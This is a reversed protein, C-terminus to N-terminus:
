TPEGYEKVGVALSGFPSTKFKPIRLRGAHALKLAVVPWNCPVGVAAPVNAFMVIPTLSPVDLTGNGANVIVTVDAGGGGGGGGFEGGVIEPEGDVDTCTPVIYENVGLALSGFLLGNVNEIAFRGAHAVNVALVPWSWPVGVAAPVNEFTVILTLSPVAVADSGANVIVTAAAGFEGGTIEPDGGVLTSCFLWYENVGVALSGFLLGNVNEIAFRGAHAVNVAPVPWSWPVGVAAFTPVYVFMTILTLSPVAVAASGAKVIVTAATPVPEAVSVQVAGVCFSSPEGNASRM